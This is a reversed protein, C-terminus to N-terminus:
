KFDVAMQQPISLGRTTEVPAEVVPATEVVEPEVVVPEADLTAPAIAQPAEVAPAETVLEDNPSKDSAIVDFKALAGMSAPRVRGVKRHDVVLVNYRAHRM